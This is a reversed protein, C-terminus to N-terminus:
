GPRLCVAQQPQLELTLRGDNITQQALLHAGTPTLQHIEVRTVDHWDPPLEWTRQGGHHSYAICEQGAWPAPLLLDGNEVLLREGQILRFHRDRKRVSTRVDDSFYVEYDERTHVHRCITHRNLFHWPLTRTYFGDAFEALQELRALDYSISHGWAEEYLCGLEPSMWVNEDEKAVRHRKNWGSGGGCIVSAPYRLRGEEDLNLHYVMPVLGAFEHHFWEQTVDIGLAHWYRLIEIMTAVEDDFSVQHYPSPCPRFVDIHVTGAQALPLMAVLTDIRRQAFGAQWERTKSVLYSQAGDWIGGLLLTGDANRNLLDQQVYEDWLPSDPYADCMNIHLSVTTNLAAAERMLWHLSELASGDEARGLRHNVEGWAPYRSDHGDYQWGVLYVIQKIGRTLQHVHRILELAQAFSVFDDPRSKWALFIKYTLTQTYNHQYSYPEMTPSDEQRM